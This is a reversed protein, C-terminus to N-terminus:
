KLFTDLSVLADADFDKSSVGTLYPEMEALMAPDYDNIDIKKSGTSSKRKSKSPTTSTSSPTSGLSLSQVIKATSTAPTVPTVPTQLGTFSSSSGLNSARADAPNCKKKPTEYINSNNDATRKTGTPDMQNPNLLRQSAKFQMVAPESAQNEGQQRPFEFPNQISAPQGNFFQKLTELTTAFGSKGKQNNLGDREDSDSGSAASAEISNEYAAIDFKKDNNLSKSHSHVISITSSKQAQNFNIASIQVRDKAFTKHRDKFSSFKGRTAM